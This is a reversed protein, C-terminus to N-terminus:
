YTQYYKLILVGRLCPPNPLMLIGKSDSLVISIELAYPTYLSSSPTDNLDTLITVKLYDISIELAYPTHLFSSPIDPCKAPRM